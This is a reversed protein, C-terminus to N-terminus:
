VRTVYFDATGNRGPSPSCGGPGPTRAKSDDALDEATPVTAGLAPLWVRDEPGIPAETIITATRTTQEGDGAPTVAETWEVRAPCAVQPGYSPDGYGDVGVYPAVTVSQKLLHRVRV